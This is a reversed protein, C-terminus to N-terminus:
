FVVRAVTLYRHPNSPDEQPKRWSVSVTVVTPDTPDIQVSGAGNPLDAAIAADWTAKNPSSGGDVYSAVNNKDTMMQSIIQNALYSAETRYKAHITENISVTQLAVLALVGFAFIAAAILGEILTIGRQSPPMRLPRKLM